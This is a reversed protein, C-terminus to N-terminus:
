IHAAELRVRPADDVALEVLQERVERGDCEVAGLSDPLGRRGAGARRRGVAKVVRGRALQERSVGSSHGRCGLRDEDVLMLAPLRRPVEHASGDVVVGAVSAEEEGPRCRHRM